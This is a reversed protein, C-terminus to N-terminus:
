IKRPSRWVRVLRRRTAWGQAPGGKVPRKPHGMRGARPLTPATAPCQSQREGRKFNGKLWRLIECRGVRWQIWSNPTEGLMDAAAVSAFTKLFRRRAM